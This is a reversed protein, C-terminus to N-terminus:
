LYAKNYWYLLAMAKREPPVDPSFVYLALLLTERPSPGLAHRGCEQPGVYPCHGHGEL